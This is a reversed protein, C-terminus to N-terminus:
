KEIRVIVVSVSTNDFQDMFVESYCHKAGKVIESDKLSSPVIACVNGNKELLDYALQVHLKARGKSFPPNMVIRDYRNKTKNAFVVFDDAIVNYGKMLLISSNTEGIEICDILEKNVPIYECLGGQGASPELVKEENTEFGAYDILLEALEKKTPYYQHSKYEEIYGKYGVMRLLKIADFDASYWTYNVVKEKRIGLYEFVDNLEKCNESQGEIEFNCVSKRMIEDILQSRDEQDRIRYKKIPNVAKVIKNYFINVTESMLMRKELVYNKFDKKRKLFERKESIQMPYIESLLVALEEVIEPHLEIHVTGKKYIKMRFANGDIYKWEGSCNHYFYELMSSSNVSQYENVKRIQSILSRLDDIKKSYSYNVTKIDSYIVNEFIFKETIQDSRNTKHNRSLSRLVGDAKEAMYKRKGSFFGFITSFVNEFTFEPLEGKEITLDWEVLRESPMVSKVASIDFAKKWHKKLLEKQLNEVSMLKFINGYNHQDNRCIIDHESLSFNIVENSIVSFQEAALIVGENERNFSEVLSKIVNREIIETMKKGLKDKNNFM